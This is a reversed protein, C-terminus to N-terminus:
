SSVRFVLYENLMNSHGDARFCDVLQACDSVAAILASVEESTFHHCYRFVGQTQQWGLLYDNIDLDLCIGRESFYKLAASHSIIARKALRADDMFRWLSVAVTGGKRTATCLERLLRRRADSGPVHHFFGFCVTLDAKGGSAANVSASCAFRFPLAHQELLSTVVDCSTFVVGQEVNVLQECNDVAHYNLPTKPLQQELFRKFRLNGCAVDLVSLRREGRQRDQAYQAEQTGQAGCAAAISRANVVVRQWGQWANQRTASFSEAQTAYFKQTTNNLIRATFTNM